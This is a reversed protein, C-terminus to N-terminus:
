IRLGKNEEIAVRVSQGLDKQKDEKERGRGVSLLALGGDWHSGLVAETSRAASSRGKSSM